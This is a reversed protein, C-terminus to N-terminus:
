QAENVPVCCIQRHVLNPDPCCVPGDQCLPLGGTGGCRPSGPPEFTYDGTPPATFIYNSGPPGIYVVPQPPPQVVSTDGDGTDGGTKGDTLGVDVSGGGDAAPPTEQRAQPTEAVQQAESKMPEVGISLMFAALSLATTTRKRKQTQAM